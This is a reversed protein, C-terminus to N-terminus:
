LRAATYIIVICVAVLVVSWFAGFAILAIGWWPM